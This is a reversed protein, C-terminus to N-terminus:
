FGCKWRRLWIFGSPFHWRLPDRSLEIFTLNHDALAIIAPMFNNKSNQDKFKFILLADIAVGLIIGTHTTKHQKFFSQYDNIFSDLDFRPGEQEIKNLYFERSKYIYWAETTVKRIYNATILLNLDVFTRFLNDVQAIAKNSKLEIPDAATGNSIMQRSTSFATLSSVCFSFLVSGAVSCALHRRLKWGGEFHDSTKGRRLWLFVLFYVGIFPFLTLVCVGSLFFHSTRPFIDKFRRYFLGQLTAYLFVQLLIMGFILTVFGFPRDHQYLYNYAGIGALNTVLALVIVPVLKKRFEPRGLPTLSSYWKFFTKM